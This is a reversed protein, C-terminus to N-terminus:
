RGAMITSASTNRGCWRRYRRLRGTRGPNNIFVSQGKENYIKLEEDPLSNSYKKQVERFKAATLNDEALFIQAVTIARERLHTYFNRERNDETLYYISVMVCLLLIAFILTFQLSLRRFEIRREDDKSEKIVYGMGIITHILQGSSSKDIKKRLYNIYVDILNTGRNFDIGWVAEAIYARSLVRGKNALLVELLTFEKSTLVIDKGNRRVTKKYCDM